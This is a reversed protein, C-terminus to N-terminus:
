LLIRVKVTFNNTQALDRELGRPNSIIENPDYVFCFLVKCDPHKQYNEIDVILQGGLEKQGLGKRTKKVEIVIKEKKLLFDIRSSGGAYSPTWEESRIDDFHIKLLSHLLDQVDYEDSIKLTSRNKHRKRLQNAVRHFRVCINEIVEIPNEIESFRRNTFDAKLLVRLREARAHLKEADEEDLRRDEGQVYKKRFNEILKHWGEIETKALGYKTLLGELVIMSNLGYGSGDKEISGDKHVIPHGSHRLRLYEIRHSIEWVDIASLHEIPQEEM